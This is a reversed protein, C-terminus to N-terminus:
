RGVKPDVSLDIFKPTGSPIMGLERARAALREPTSLATLERLAEERAESIKQSELKLEKIRVADHSLAINITLIGLLTLGLLGGILGYFIRDSARDKPLEALGPILRLAAKTSRDVAAKRSREITPALSSLAM